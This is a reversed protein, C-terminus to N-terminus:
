AGRVGGNPTSSGSDKMAKLKAYLRNVCTRTGPTERECTRDPSFYNRCGECVDLEYTMEELFFTFDEEDNLDYPDCYAGSGDIWEKMLPILQKRTAM